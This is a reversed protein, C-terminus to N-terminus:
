LLFLDSSFCVKLHRVDDIAYEIQEPTLPRRSWDSLTLTKPLKLSICKYVYLLHPDLFQFNFFFLGSVDEVLQALSVYFTYGCFGAAVQTDL